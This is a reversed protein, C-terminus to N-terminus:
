HRLLMARGAPLLAPSPRTRGPVAARSSAGEEQPRAPEPDEWGVQPGRRGEQSCRQGWFTCSADLSRASPLNNHTPRHSTLDTLGGAPRVRVSGEGGAGESEVSPVQSVGQLPESVPVSTAQAWCWLSTSAPAGLRTPFHLCLKIPSAPLSSQPMISTSAAREPCRLYRSYGTSPETPVLATEEGIPTQDIM